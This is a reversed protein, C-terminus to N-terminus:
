HRNNCRIKIYVREYIFVVGYLFRSFGLERKRSLHNISGCTMWSATARVSSAHTISSTTQARTRQLSFAITTDHAGTQSMKGTTERDNGMSERKLGELRRIIHIACIMLVYLCADAHLATYLLFPKICLVFDFEVLGTWQCKLIFCNM